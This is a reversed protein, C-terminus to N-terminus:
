KEGHQQCHHEIRSSSSSDKAFIAQSFAPPRSQYMIELMNLNSSKGSNTEEVHLSHAYEMAPSKVQKRFPLIQAM